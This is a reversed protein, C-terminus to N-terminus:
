AGSSTVREPRFLELRSVEKSL